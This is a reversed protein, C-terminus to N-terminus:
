LQYKKKIKKKFSLINHFVVVMVWCQYMLLTFYNEKWDIKHMNQISTKYRGEDLMGQLNGYFEFVNSYFFTYMINHRSAKLNFSEEVAYKDTTTM